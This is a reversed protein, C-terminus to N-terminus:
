ESMLTSTKLSTKDWDTNREYLKKSFRGTSFMLAKIKGKLRLLKVPQVVQYLYKNQKISFRSDFDFAVADCKASREISYLKCKLSNM